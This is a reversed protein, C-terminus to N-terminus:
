RSWTQSRCFMGMMCGSLTLSGGSLAATGSYTKDNSPDTITGSYRGGGAPAMTGIGKGAHPGSRLTICYSGGCPAIAAISGTQTRWNGVIPDAASAAGGFALPLLAAFAVARTM